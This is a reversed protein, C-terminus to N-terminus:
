VDTEVKNNEVKNNLTGIRTPAGNKKSGLHLRISGPSSQEKEKWKDSLSAAAEYLFLYNEKNGMCGARKLHYLKAMMYINASKDYQLQDYISWLACFTAAEVGGYRDVVIVPGMDNHKHLTQLEDIFDFTSHLPDCSDPWPSNWTVIRTMLIYDDQNSQLLFEKIKFQRRDDDERYTLKFNGGIDLTCGMAPWFSQFEQEDVNSLQVIVSSNQDWVMRWFDEMTDLLPHQTIIFENSKTYGQLYTANIYDSGEEGPIMPLCVRKVSLPLFQMNRNKALNVSKLGHFRDDDQPAFSTVRMYEIDILPIEGNIQQKLRALQRGLDGEKIETDGGTLIYEAIAEHILIYQEETQVLSKRQNRIHLLFAPVNITQTDKIKHIMSDILIYTGTRGVGASCHIVIPGAGPPNDGSSKQIFKLVPLTFEPVGHDPWETYHYQHVIRESVQKSKKNKNSKLSFLRVTYHSRSITNLHKVVVSGYTEQGENPWYMDCKPRGREVLNTIMVIVITNQEWIMRWFDAFTNPLPGQTAIYARPKNYGDIFNANIYDSSKPRGPVPQLVVRSHDYASINVYRNKCKNEPLDSNEALLNTRTNAGIEEFERAFGDDSNAHLQKVHMPFDRAAIDPYTVQCSDVADPPAITITQPSHNSTPVAMYYLSRTYKRCTRSRYGIVALLTITVLVFGIIIGAILGAQSTSAAATAVVSPDELSFEWEPSFDGMYTATSFISQTIAAMKLSYESNTPIDTIVRENEDAAAIVEDSIGNEGRAHYHIFYSDVKKYVRSPPLWQLFISTSSLVTLNVIMPASAGRVDTLAPYNDSYESYGGGTEARVRLMYDTYPELDSIVARMPQTLHGTIIRTKYTNNHIWQLQYNKLVGNDVTPAEWNVVFSTSQMETVHTIRPKGPVGEATKIYLTTIPGQGEDNFLQISVSYNTFPMLSDLTHTMTKPDPITVARLEMDTLRRYQIVYGEPNGNLSDEAIPQWSLQITNSTPSSARFNQPAQGPAESTTMFISSPQSPASNGLANKAIVHIQYYTFPTLERVVISTTNSNVLLVRSKSWDNDTMRKIKIIYNTIPSNNDRLSSNWSLVCERSKIDTVMVVGPPSPVDDVNSDYTLMAVTTLNGLLWDGEEVELTSNPPGVDKVTDISYLLEGITDSTLNSVPDVSDSTSNSTSNSRSSALTENYPEDEQVILETTTNEDLFKVGQLDKKTFSKKCIYFGSDSSVVSHVHLTYKDDLLSFKGKPATDSTKTQRDFGTQLIWIGNHYWVQLQLEENSPFTLGCDITVNTGIAGYVVGPTVPFDISGGTISIFTLLLAATFLSSSMM